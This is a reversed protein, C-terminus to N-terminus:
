APTQTHPDFRVFASSMATLLAIVEIILIVGASAVGAIWSGSFAQVIAGIGVAAVVVIAVAFTKLFMVFIMRGSGQLDGPAATAFRSPFLLFMLNEVAFMVFNAPLILTAAALLYMTHQPAAILAMGIISFHFVSMVLAPAVIEGACITMPPLPLAKLADILDIDGRFDFRLSNALMVSAWMIVGATPRITNGAERQSFVFIGAGIGIMALLTLLGRSQRLASTMQRWAIPGIGGLRPLMPARVRASTARMSIGRSRAQRVMEYRRRSATAAAEMYQADLLLVAVLLAAIMAIAVGMWMGAGPWVSGAAIIRGFVEFPALLVRLAASQKLGHAILIPDHTRAAAIIPEAAFALVVLIGALIFRRVRNLVRESINLAILMIAISLLQLFVLSLFCAMYAAIWGPAYNWFFTGFVAASIAAAGIGKLIKYILLERRTFPGPFLFDTEAPTFAIAREGAAGILNAICFTLLIVPLYITVATPDARPVTYHRVIAGLLAAGVVLFGFSLFIITRASRGGRFMWRLRAGALLRLLRWLSRHMIM